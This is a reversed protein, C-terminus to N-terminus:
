PEGRPDERGLGFLDLTEEIRDLGAHAVRVLARAGGRTGPRTRLRERSPLSRPRAALAPASRIVDRLEHPLLAPGDDLLRSSAPSDASRRAAAPGSPAPPRRAASGSPRSM